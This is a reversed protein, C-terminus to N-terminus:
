DPILNNIPNIKKEAKGKEFSLKTIQQVTVYSDLILRLIVVEFLRLIAGNYIRRGQSLLLYNLAQRQNNGKM